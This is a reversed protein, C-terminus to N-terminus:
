SSPRMAAFVFVIASSIAIIGPVIAGLYFALIADISVLAAIFFLIKKAEKVMFLSLGALAALSFLHLSAHVFLVPFIEKVFSKLNSQEVIESIYITGSAHFLGMAFLLVCGILTFLRSKKSNNGAQVM